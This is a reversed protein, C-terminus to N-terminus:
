GRTLTPRAYAHAIKEYARYPSAPFDVETEENEEIAEEPHIARSWPGWGPEEEHDYHHQHQAHEYYIIDHPCSRIGCSLDLGRCSNIKKFIGM